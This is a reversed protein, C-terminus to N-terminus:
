RILTIRRCITKDSVHAKVLYIGGPLHRANWIYRDDHMTDHNVM